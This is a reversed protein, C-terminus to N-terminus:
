GLHVYDASPPEYALPSPGSLTFGAQKEFAAYTTADFVTWTYAAASVDQNGAVDVAHVEITHVGPAINSLNLRATASTSYTAASDVRYSYTCPPEDCAFLFSADTSATPSAPGSQVMTQPVQTDLTWEVMTEAGSNGAMDTSSVHLQYLGDSLGALSITFSGDTTSVAPSGTMTSFSADGVKEVRYTTGGTARINADTVVGGFVPNAGQSAPGPATIATVPATTDVIFNLCKPTPDVVGASTYAKAYITHSGESLGKIGFKPFHVGTKYSGSDLKYMYTFDAVPYTADIRASIDFTMTTSSTATSITTGCVYADTASLETEIPEVTFSDTAIAGANGLLDVGYVKFTNSGIPFTGTALVASTATPTSPMTYVTGDTSYKSYTGQESHTWAFSGSTATPNGGNAWTTQITTTPPTTDVSWTFSQATGANTLSDVALVSFTHSGDSLSSVTKTATSGLSTYGAGDLDYRFTCGANKAHPRISFSYFSPYQETNGAPDVARVRLVHEGATMQAATTTFTVSGAQSDASGAAFAVGCSAYAGNDVACLYTTYYYECSVTETAGTNPDNAVNFSTATTTDCGQKNQTTQVAVYPNGVAGYYDTVSLKFSFAGNYYGNGSNPSPDYSSETGSQTIASSPAVNDVKFAYSFSGGTAEDTFRTPNANDDTCAVSFIYYGDPLNSQTYTHTNVGAAAGDCDKWDFGVYELMSDTGAGDAATATTIGYNNNSVLDASTEPPPHCM